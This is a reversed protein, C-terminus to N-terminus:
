ENEGENEDANRAVINRVSDIVTIVIVIVPSRPAHAGNCATCYWVTSKLRLVLDSLCLQCKADKHHEQSKAIDSDVDDDRKQSQPLWEVRKVTGM